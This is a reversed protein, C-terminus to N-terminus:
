STECFWKEMFSLVPLTVIGSFWVRVISYMLERVDMEISDKWGHRPKELPKKGEPERVLIKRM